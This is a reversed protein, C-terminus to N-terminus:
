SNFCTLFSSTTIHLNTHVIKFFNRVINSSFIRSKVRKNFIFFSKLQYRRVKRNQIFFSFIFPINTTSILCRINRCPPKRSPFVTLITIKTRYIHLRQWLRVNTHIIHKVRPVIRMSTSLFINIKTILKYKRLILSITLSLFIM